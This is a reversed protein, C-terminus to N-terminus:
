SPVRDQPERATMPPLGGRARAGVTTPADAATGALAAGRSSMLGYHACFALEQQQVLPSGLPPAPARRIQDKEYPIWVHGTAAVADQAPVLAYADTFRGMKVLLWHPTRDDHDVYVDEVKGVRTGYVDDVRFGIWDLMDSRTAMQEAAYPRGAM